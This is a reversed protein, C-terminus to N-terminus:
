YGKVGCARYADWIEYGAGAHGQQIWLSYLQTAYRRREGQYYEVMSENNQKKAESEYQDIEKIIEMIENIKKQIENNAFSGSDCPLNGTIPYDYHITKRVRYLEQILGQETFILGSRAANFNFM